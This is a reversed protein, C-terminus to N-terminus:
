VDFSTCWREFSDYKVPVLPMKWTSINDNMEYGQMTQNDVGMMKRSGDVFVWALKVYHDPRPPSPKYIGWLM